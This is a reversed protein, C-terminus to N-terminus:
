VVSKRDEIEPISQLIALAPANLTALQEEGAKTDVLRLKGRTWDIDARKAQLLEGKRLGTLLYLWLAARVYINPEGDIATALPPLEEPKM